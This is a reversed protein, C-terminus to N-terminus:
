NCVFGGTGDNPWQAWSKGWGGNTTGAWNHDPGDVDSCDADAAIGVSQFVDAPPTRVVVPIEEGPAAWRAYLTASSTFLYTAGDAYAIAGTPTAAWGAFTYGTRIFANTTLSAASSDTQPAMTGSADAANADFTVTYSAFDVLRYTATLAGSILSGSAGVALGQDGYGATYTLRTATLAPVEQGFYSTASPAVMAILNNWYTVFMNGSGDIDIGAPRSADTAWVTLEEFSDATVSQGYLTTTTKPLVFVGENGWGDTVYVNDSGDIALDWFWGGSYTVVTTATNATVNVGFLTGSSAPLVVVINRTQNVGFLNGASDFALGGRLNTGSAIRTFTDATVATGFVTRNTSTLVWVSGGTDSVYVDGLGDM